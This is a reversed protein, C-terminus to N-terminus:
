INEGVRKKVKKKEYMIGDAENICEELTTDPRIDFIKYGMTLSLEAKGKGSANYAEVEKNVRKWYDEVEKETKINGMVVFEDGGYRVVSFKTTSAMLIKAAQSIIRDGEEHGFQDNIKKLNDLDIFSLQMNLKSMLCKKKIDVFFREMGFRNYSGTLSDKIYLEDLHKTVNKLLTNRRVNELTHGMNILWYVFIPSNKVFGDDVFVFYGFSRDLYHLPTFIFTKPENTEKFLEPLGYKSEFTTGRKFSGHKYVIISEVNETYPLLDETETSDHIMAATGFVNDIFDDNVCCYFEEPDIREIFGKLSKSWAEYDQGEIIDKELMILQHIKIRQSVDESHKLKTVQDAFIKDQKSCGCSEGFVIEDTLRIDRDTEKNDLVDIIIRCAEKGLEYVRSRVTTLSPIHFKGEETDDYGTVAVDEPIRYGKEVLLDCVTLAMIDNACVIAQPFKLESSLIEEVARNGGTVYFDGQTVREEDFPINHEALADLYGRFRAEGDANGEVGKVFHIRDMNHEVVFHEVLKKTAQYCDTHVSYNGDGISCGLGVVPCDLDEIMEEINVRNDTLHMTNAFIIVGDFLTLDPLHAINREGVNHKEREYAGTFWVFVAINYGHAHGYEEIGRLTEAQVNADLGTMLVAINKCAM